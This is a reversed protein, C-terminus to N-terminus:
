GKLLVDLSNNIDIVIWQYYEASDYSNSNIKILLYILTSTKKKQKSSKGQEQQNDILVTITKYNKYSM